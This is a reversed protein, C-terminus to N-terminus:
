NEYVHLDGTFEVLIRASLAHSRAIHPRDINPLNNVSASPLLAPQPIIPRSKNVWAWMQLWKVALCRWM